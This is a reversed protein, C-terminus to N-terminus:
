IALLKADKISAGDRYSFLPWAKLEYNTGTRITDTYLTRHYVFGGNSSNTSLSQTLVSIKTNFGRSTEESSNYYSASISYKNDGTQNLTAGDESYIAPSYYEKYKSSIFAKEDSSFVRQYKEGTWLWIGPINEGNLNTGDTENLSALDNFSVDSQDLVGDPDRFILRYNSRINRGEFINYQIGLTNNESDLLSPQKLNQVFLKLSTLVEEARESIDILVGSISDKSEYVDEYSWCASRGNLNYLQVLNDSSLEDRRKIVVAPTDGLEPFININDYAAGLYVYEGVGDDYLFFGDRSAFLVRYTYLENRLLAKRSVEGSAFYTQRITTGDRTVEVNGSASDSNSATVTFTNEDTVTIIYVGDLASNDIFKLNVTNGTTLKHGTLTTTVTTGSKSFTASHTTPVNYVLCSDEEPIDGPRCGPIIELYENRIYGSGPSIITPIKLEDISGDSKVTLKVVANTASSEIGRLNVDVEAPLPLDNGDSDVIFYNIGKSFVPASVISGNVSVNVPAGYTDSSSRKDFGTPLTDFWVYNDSSFTYIDQLSGNPDPRGRTIFKTRTSINGQSDSISENVLGYVQGSDETTPSSIFSELRSAFSFLLLDSEVGPSYLKQVASTANLGDESLNNNTYLGATM